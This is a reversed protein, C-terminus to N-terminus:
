TEEEESFRDIDAPWANDESSKKPILCAAYFLLMLGGLVYGWM